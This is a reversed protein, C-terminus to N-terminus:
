SSHSSVCQMPLITVCQGDDNKAVLFRSGANLYLKAALIFKLM